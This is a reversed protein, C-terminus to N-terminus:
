VPGAAGLGEWPRGRNAWAINLRGGRDIAAATLVEDTQAALAVGSRPALNGHAVLEIDIV